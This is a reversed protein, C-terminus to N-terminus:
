QKVGKPLLALIAEAALNCSYFETIPAIFRHLLLGSLTEDINETVSFVQEGGMPVVLGITM